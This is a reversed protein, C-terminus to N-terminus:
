RTPHLIFLLLSLPQCLPPPTLSQCYVQSSLDGAGLVVWCKHKNIRMASTQYLGAEKTVGVSVNETVSRIFQGHDAHTVVDELSHRCGPDWCVFTPFL